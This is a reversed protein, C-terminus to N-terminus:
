KGYRLGLFAALVTLFGAVGGMIASRMSIAANQNSRWTQLDIVDSSLKRRETDCNEQYRQSNDCSAQIDALRQTNQVRLEVGQKMYEEIRPLVTEVVSLRQLIESVGVRREQVAM